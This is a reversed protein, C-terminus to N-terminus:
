PHIFKIKEGLGEWKEVQNGKRKTKGEEEMGKGEEWKWDGERRGEERGKKGM